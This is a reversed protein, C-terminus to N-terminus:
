TLHAPSPLPSPPRPPSRLKSGDPNLLLPLHVFVPLPQQMANYIIVHKPASPLWEEGRIVHSIRMHIDDVM